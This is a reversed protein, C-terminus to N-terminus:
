TATEEVVTEETNVEEAMVTMPLAATMALTLLVALKKKM